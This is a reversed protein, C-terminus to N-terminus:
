QLTDAPDFTPPLQVDVYRDGLLGSSGVVFTAGRPIRVEESIELKAEVRFTDRILTPPGAVRGIRAGSLLVDSGKILGSANPFEVTLAYFHQPGSGAKGFMVVMVAICGFGILLFLGVFFEVGKRETSM